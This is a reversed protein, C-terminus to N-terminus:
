GLWILGTQTEKDLKNFIRKLIIMGALGVKELNDRESLDGCWCGKHVEETGGVRTM